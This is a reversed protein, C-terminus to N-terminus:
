SVGEMRFFRQIDPDQVELLDRYPGWFLARGHALFLARAAIRAISAKEHTVVVLGLGLDRSLTLLLEDLGEATVPDLGASPEDCFVLPPQLVLARALAARKRMGGSLQAPMLGAADVLGVRELLSLGWARAFSTRIPPGPLSPEMLLPFLVNDLVTLHGMLAGNQFLVGLHCVLHRLSAEDSFDVGKGWATVTGELPTQLGCLTRLLTSKGCGSQGLVVLIEGAAVTGSLGTLVPRGAYGCSLNHLAMMEM